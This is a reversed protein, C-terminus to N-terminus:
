GVVRPCHRGTSHPVTANNYHVYYYNNNNSNNNHFIYYVQSFFLEYRVCTIRM